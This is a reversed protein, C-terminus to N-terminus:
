SCDQRAQVFLQGLRNMRELVLRVQPELPTLFQDEFERAPRDNWQPRTAEWHLALLKYAAHLQGSGASMDGPKM